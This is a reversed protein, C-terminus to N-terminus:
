CGYHGPAPGGPTYDLAFGAGEGPVMSPLASSQAYRQQQVFDQASEAQPLPKSLRQRGIKPDIGHKGFAQFVCDVKDNAADWDRYDLYVVDWGTLDLLRRKLKSRGTLMWPENAFYHVPGDFEVATRTPVQAMDLSLGSETDYHESSHSWGTEQLVFSVQDQTRSGLSKETIKFSEAFDRRWAEPLPPLEGTVNPDKTLRLWAQQLQSKAVEDLADPEWPDGEFMLCWMRRCTEPDDLGAYSWVVNALEQPAFVQGLVRAREFLAEYLDGRDTEGAAAFAWAVNSVDVALFDDMSRLAGDALAQFLDPAYVAARAYSWAVTAVRQPTCWQDRNARVNAAIVPACAVFLDTGMPADSAAFAWLTNSVDQPGFDDIRRMVQKAISAFLFESGRALSVKAFAYTMNSIEQPKFNDLIPEAAQAIAEFLRADRKTLKAYAWATNALHQPNFKRCSKQAGRSLADLTDSLWFTHTINTQAGRKQLTGKSEEAPMVFGLTALAWAMNALDQSGLDDEARKVIESAVSAFFRPHDKRGAVAFAYLTNSCNQAKFSQMKAVSADALLAWLGDSGQGAKAFAWATNSINQPNDLRSPGRRLVEEEVVFFTQAGTATDAGGGVKATAWVANSLDQANARGCVVQLRDPLARFLFDPAEFNAIVLAYALSVLNQAELEELRKHAEQVLLTLAKHYVAKEAPHTVPPGESVRRGIAWATNSINQCNFEHLKSATRASFAAFFNPAYFESRAYAWITNSLNQANFGDLARLSCAVTAEFCRTHQLGVTAYAWVVNTLNQANFLEMKRVCMDGSLEFFREDPIRLRAFAWMANSLEQPKFEDLRGEIERAFPEMDEATGVSLTALAWCTNALGQSTFTRLKPHAAKPLLAVVELIAPDNAGATAFAWSLNSIDQANFADLRKSSTQAFASYCRTDSPTVRLKAVAYAANVLHRSSWQDAQQLQKETSDLLGQFVPDLRGRAQFGMKSLRHLAGALVIPNAKSLDGAKSLLQLLGQSGQGKPLRSIEGNLKADEPSMPQGNPGKGGGKSRFGKQKGDGGGRGYNQGGGRGYGQGGGYNGQGKGGGYGQPSGGYGGGGKGGQPSGGYGGGRKGGGGYGHQGGGQQGYGGQQGGGGYGGQQGGYGGQPSGYGGGRQGGQQGGYGGQQQGGYGGQQQGGYGGQPSGYGGDQQQGYGGQQPPGGYGGGGKGGGYRDGM